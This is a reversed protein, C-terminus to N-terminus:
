IREARVILRELYETGTFAGTCTILTLAEVGTDGLVAASEGTPRAWWTSTVAYTFGAGGRGTVYIRDGVALQELTWFVTPGIDWWDKHGSMVVNSSDGPRAFDPYWGVNWPDEPVGMVGDVIGVREIAADIGIAPIRIRTPVFRQDAEPVTSDGAYLRYRNLDLLPLSRRPVRRLDVGEASALEVGVPAASVEGGGLPIQLRAYEFWQVKADAATYAETLPMGFRSPGNMRDYFAKMGGQVAHGTEAFYRRDDDPMTKAMPMFPVAQRLGGVRRGAVTRDPDHLAALLFRGAKVRHIAPEATDTRVRVTLLGLEFFQALDNDREWPESIPLGLTNRGEHHAWYTFFPAGLTHGTSEVYFTSADATATLSGGLSNVLILPVLLAALGCTMAADMARQRGRDTDCDAAISRLPAVTSGDGPEGNHRRHGHRKGM